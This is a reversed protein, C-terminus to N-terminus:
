TGSLTPELAFDLTFSSVRRGRREQCDIEPMAARAAAPPHEVAEGIVQLNFLVANFRTEDATIEDFIRDKVFRGIKEAAEILDDLYLLCDRSV